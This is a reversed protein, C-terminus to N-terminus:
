SRGKMSIQPILTIKFRFIVTEMWEKQNGNSCSITRRGMAGSGAARNDTAWRGPVQEEASLGVGWGAVGAGTKRPAAQM